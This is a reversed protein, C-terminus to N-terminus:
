ELHMGTIIVAVAEMHAHQFHQFHPFAFMALSASIALVSTHTQWQVKFVIHAFKM